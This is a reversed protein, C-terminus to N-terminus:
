QILDQNYQGKAKEWKEPTFTKLALAHVQHRFEDKLTNMVLQHQKVLPKGIFSESIVFAEFHVMDGRPNNVFVIADPLASQITSKIEDLM